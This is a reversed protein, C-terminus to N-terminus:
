GGRQFRVSGALEAACEVTPCFLGRNDDLVHRRRHEHRRFGRPRRRTDHSFHNCHHNPHVSKRRVHNCDVVGYCNHWSFERIGCPQGVSRRGVLSLPAVDSAWPTMLVQSYDATAYIQVSRNTAWLVVRPLHSSIADWTNPPALLATLGVIGVLLGLGCHLVKESDGGFSASVPSARTKWPAAM